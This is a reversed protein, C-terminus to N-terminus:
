SVFVAKTEVTVELRVVVKSTETIQGDSDHVAVSAIKIVLKVDLEVKLVRVNDFLKDGDIPRSQAAYKCIMM